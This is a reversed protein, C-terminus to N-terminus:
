RHAHKKGHESGHKAGKGSPGTHRHRADGHGWGPRTSRTETQTSPRASRTPAAGRGTNAASGGAAEHSASSKGLSAHKAALLRIPAITRGGDPFDARAAVPVAASTGAQPIPRVREGEVAASQLSFVPADPAKAAAGPLRSLLYYSVSALASLLLLWAGGVALRARLAALLPIPVSRRGAGATEIFLAPLPTAAFAAQAGGALVRARLACDIRDFAQARGGLVVQYAQEDFETGCIDCRAM